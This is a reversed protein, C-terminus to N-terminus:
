YTLKEQLSLRKGSLVLDGYHTKERERLCLYTIKKVHCHIQFVRIYFDTLLFM